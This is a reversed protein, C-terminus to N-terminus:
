EEKAPATPAPYPPNFKDCFKVVDIPATPKLPAIVPITSLRAEIILAIM